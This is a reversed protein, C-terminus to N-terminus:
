LGMAIQKRLWTRLAAEAAEVSGGDGEILAFDQARILRKQWADHQTEEGKLPAALSPAVAFVDWEQYGFSLSNNLVWTYSNIFAETTDASATAPVAIFVLEYGKGRVGKSATEIETMSQGTVDWPMMTVASGPAVEALLKTLLTDYPPMALISLSKKAAIRDLTRPIAPQPAPVSAGPRGECVLTSVITKALLKHGDMNPHIPDSMLFAWDLANQTRIYEFAAYCDALPVKEETAVERVVAVYQELTAIPRSATDRISNPTCLMVEAGVTRCKAIINKLNARYDELSVRTMDNLGFMVTVLDPKHALVDKKIRALADVTTNGSVGANIATIDGNPYAQRLGIGVMDTYARRGGTHYYVGTVSDGFCVVKSPKDQAFKAAVEPYILEGTAPLSFICFISLVCLTFTRSIVM